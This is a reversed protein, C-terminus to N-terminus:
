VKDEINPFAMTLFLIFLFNFVFGKSNLAVREEIVFSPNAVITKLLSM